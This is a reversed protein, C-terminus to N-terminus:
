YVFCRWFSHIEVHCAITKRLHVHAICLSFDKLHDIKIKVVSIRGLKTIRCNNSAFLFLPNTVFSFLQKLLIMKQVRITCSPFIFTFNPVGCSYGKKKNVMSLLLQTQFAARTWNREHISRFEWQMSGLWLKSFENKKCKCYRILHEWNSDVTLVQIEFFKSRHIHPIKSM